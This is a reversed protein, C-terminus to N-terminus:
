ETLINQEPTNEVDPTVNDKVDDTIDENTPPTTDESSTKGEQKAKVADIRDRLLKNVDSQEQYYQSISNEYLTLADDYNEVFELYNGLAFIGLPYSPQLSYARFFIQEAQKQLEEDENFQYIYGLIIYNDPNYPNRAVAESVAQLTEAGYLKGGSLDILQKYITAATEWNVSDVPNLLIAKQLEDNIVKENNSMIVSANEDNKLNKANDRLVLIGLNALQRHYYDKKDNKNIAGVINENAEEFAGFGAAVLSKKYQIEAAFNRLVFFSFIILVTSAVFSFVYPFVEGQDGKTSNKSIKFAFEFKEKAGPSQAFYVSVLLALVLWSAFMIVANFVTLFSIILFIIASFSLGSMLYNDKNENKKIINKLIFLVLMVALLGFALFGILGTNTLTDLIQSTSRTYNQHWNLQYNQEIPRFRPFNYVYTDLGTGVLFGSVKHARFTGTVVAWTTDFPPSTYGAFSFNKSVVDRLNPIVSFSLSFLAFLIVPVFKVLANRNKTVKYFLSVGVIIFVLIWVLYISNSIISSIGIAFLLLCASVIELIQELANEEVNDSIQSLVLPLSFIFMYLLTNTSGVPTFIPTTLASLSPNSEAISEFLGSFMGFSNLVTFLALLVISIIYSRLILKIYHTKALNNVIVYYLLVLTISIILGGTMRSFYGWISTQSYISFITSIVQSILYIIIPIDFPTKALVLKKSYTVKVAWLILLLVVGIVLFTNKFTEYYEYTFPSFIWPMLFTMAALIYSMIKTIVGSKGRSNLQEVGVRRKKYESNMSLIDSEFRSKYVSESSSSEM